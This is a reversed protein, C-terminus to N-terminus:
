PALTAKRFADDPHEIDGRGPRPVFVEFPNNFDFLGLSLKQSIGQGIVVQSSNPELWQGHFIAKQVDNVSGFLGDVGKLYTVHEKGDFYFLVREEIIMSYSAVGDLNQIQLKQNDSLVFS